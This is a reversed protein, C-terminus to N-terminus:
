FEAEEASPLTEGGARAEKTWVMGPSLRYIASMDATYALSGAATKVTQYADSVEDGLATIESETDALIEVVEGCPLATHTRNIIRIAM